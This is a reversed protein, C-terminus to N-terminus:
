GHIELSTDAFGQRTAKLGVSCFSQSFFVFFDSGLQTLM